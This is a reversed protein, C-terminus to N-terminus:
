AIRKQNWLILLDTVKGYSQVGEPQGSIKIHMDNIKQSVEAVAGEYKSWHASEEKLDKLVKDSLMSLVERYLSKDADYLANVCYKLANVYASYRIFASESEICVLFASFNAEYEKVAMVSHAMEHAMTFPLNFDKNDMNINAEATLPFYIGTINTYSMVKSFHIKKPVAPSLSLFSYKKSAIKFNERLEKATKNFDFEEGEAEERTENSMNAFLVSVEYLKNIDPAPTEGYISKAMPVRYASYGFMIGYIILIIGCMLLFLSTIRIIFEKTTLSKNRKFIIVTIIVAIPILLIILLEFVSFPFLGFFLKFPYTVIGALPVFFSESITNIRSCIFSIAIHLGILGIAWAMRKLDRNYKIYINRNGM